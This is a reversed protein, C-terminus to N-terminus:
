KMTIWLEATTADVEAVPAQVTRILETKEKAKGVIRFSGSATKGKGELRLKVLKSKGNAHVPAATIGAPLGQATIDIKGKFGNSREVNIPIEVSKGPAMVFRDKKVKLAFDPVPSTLRLRYFFRKGGRGHLDTIEIRYTTNGKATINLEANAGIKKAQAQKVLKGNHDTLRLVADLPSALTSAEIGMRLKQGKKLSFEYVDTEGAAAIHGSVTVPVEVRQPQKRNNAASEVITPHPELRVSVVNALQTHFVTGTDASATRAVAVNKAAPPINWGIVEVKGPASRPVALPFAHDIFGATTLTLRYIFTDAGAFRISSTPTAPFAFTRVFYRGDRPVSFVIQPDMGHTDDNQALVFGDASVVQLVGDMPSKLTHHAEMSAVLTQGKHLDIGFVDVDGTKQLRGNITVSSSQLIQAKAPEDNPERELVEKLTGILFPRLNSAGEKNHLRVWCIGPQAKASVTVSLRGREKASKIQVDPRSTWVKVPWTKFVGGATVFVTTGRQAGTPYLYDLKPPAARGSPAIFMFVILISSSRYLLPNM